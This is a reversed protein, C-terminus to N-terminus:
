HLDKEEGGWGWLLGEHDDYRLWFRGIRARGSADVGLMVHHKLVPNEGWVGPTRAELSEEIDMFDTLNRTMGVPLRLTSRVLEEAVEHPPNDTWSTWGSGGWVRYYSGTPDCEALVVEVSPDTDRVQARDYRDATRLTSTDLHFLQALRDSHAPVPTRQVRSRSRASQERERRQTRAKAVAEDWGSPTVTEDGYVRRVLLPTDAPRHFVDPLCATTRLLIETDYVAEIGAAFTPPTSDSGWDDVGRVYVRPTALGPRDEDPRTHRHLRGIRQIMLDIPAIDTVLVDADIDLSQETVQTAVVIKRVPRQVGRRTNPGLEHTLRKEKIARHHAMFASHHLEVDGEAYHAELLRYAEQARRVTNCVVLACGGGAVLSNIMETLDNGNDSVRCIDVDKRPSTSPPTYVRPQETESAVTIRPYADGRDGVKVTQGTYAEIIRARQQPPLTATMVIVPAGMWGLWELTTYFFESMFTDYAHVEDFIVIKGSMAATRLTSHRHILATMLAQDVTGVVHNALLGRKRDSMWASLSVHSGEDCGVNHFDRNLDNKSHALYASSLSGQESYADVGRVVRTFLGNATSMTPAALFCGQSHHKRALVSSASLAAETKGSGTDSEIIMIPPDTFADAADMADNQLPRPTYGFAETFTHDNVSWPSTLDILGLARETRDNQHAYPADVPFFSTNSALWDSMIVFGSMVGLAATTVNESRAIKNLVSGAGIAATIGELLEHHVDRWTSNYEDLATDATQRSRPANALGHHADSVDAIQESIRRTYGYEDRLWRATIAASMLSHPLKEHAETVSPALYLGQAEVGRTVHTYHPNNAILNQFSVSAKGVDHTAALWTLLINVDSADLDTEQALFRRTQGSLWAETLHSAICATDALHNILPLHTGQPGTKAWLSTAQPSSTTIWEHLNNCLTATKQTPTM